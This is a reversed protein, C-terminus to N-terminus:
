LGAGSGAQSLTRRDATKWPEVVVNAALATVREIWPQEAAARLVLMPDTVAAKSFSQNVVWWAPYMGARHLDQQLRAAEEVPTAEPLTVVATMTYAPDRLRPLLKEVADAQPSHRRLLERHYSDAADLLLLTHGTPATDLITLEDEAEEALAAFAQFVAIEETCPSDLEERMFALESEELSGEAERLVKEKYTEFAEQPDVVSIRLNESQLAEFQSLDAAPDTTTLHVQKGSAALAAATEAAVATKGVGGKGMTMFLGRERTQLVDVMDQLGGAATSKEIEPAPPQEQDQFFARLAELGTVNWPALKIYSFATDALLELAEEQEKQWAQALPDESSAQFLGNVIVQQNRIGLTDLERGARFAERAAAQEPRTVLFLMTKAGDQLAGLAHDYQEKKSALGSVPGLCSAGHENEELFTSWAQPLQLLRLTHGTPATDFLIHDYQSTLSDDTLLQTFEDFAAVEVTCAGAMQEEMSAVASAPLLQRYPGVVRERYRGAAEEPDLNVTFLGPVDPVEAPDSGVELGFVDQLNSAPDTSVLLVQKGEDALAVAAASATSTKGVGGKGTFFMYTHHFDSPELQRHNM